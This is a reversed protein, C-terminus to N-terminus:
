ATVKRGESVEAAKRDLWLTGEKRQHIDTCSAYWRVVIGRRCRIPFARSLFWRYRGDESRFRVDTEFPEATVLSHEWATAVRELDDPHVIRKWGGHQMDTVAMGTFAEWRRNIFISEGAADTIAVMNPVTNALEVLGDIELSYSRFISTIGVLIIVAHAAILYSGQEENLDMARRMTVLAIGAALWWWGNKRSIVAVHCAGGFALMQVLLTAVSLFTLSNVIELVPTM